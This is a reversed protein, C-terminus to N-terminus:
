GRRRALWDDILQRAISLKPPTQLLDNPRFWRAEAIETPDIRIEGGAHKANFGIMLSRGYPWPQSGFYRIDTVQIGVEEHVERMVTEELSENRLQLEGHLQRIRLLNQIRLIVEFHDYPKGLFDSAGGALARRKAEPTIDATLVLIEYKALAPTELIAADECITVRYRGTDELTRSLGLAQERYGHHQRQGGSLILIPVGTPNKKQALAPTPATAALALVALAALRRHPM